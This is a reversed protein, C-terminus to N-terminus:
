GLLQSKEGDKADFIWDSLLDRQGDLLALFCTLVILIFTKMEGCMEKEPIDTLITVPSLTAVALAIATFHPMRSGPLESKRTRSPSSNLLLTFSSSPFTSWSFNSWIQGCSPTSALDFGLSLNVRTCPMMLELIEALLSTTATVPSPVLSAGASLSASTPKAMPMAPVSTALSAESM